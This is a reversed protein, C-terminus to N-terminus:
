ISDVTFQDVCQLFLHPISCGFVISQRGNNPGFSQGGLPFTICCALSDNSCFTLTWLLAWIDCKIFVHEHNIGDITKYFTYVKIEM